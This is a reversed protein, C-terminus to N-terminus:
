NALKVFVMLKYLDLLELQQDDTIDAKFNKVKNKNDQYLDYFNEEWILKLHYKKAIKLFLDRDAIFESVDISDQLWFHYKNSGQSIIKYYKNGDGMRERIIQDDPITLIFYGGDELHSSVNFLAYELRENNEFAYHFAFQCSILDFKEGELFSNGFADLVLFYANKFNPYDRKFRRQAEQISKPSIDIATYEKIKRKLLKDIDAGKGACLDLVRDNARVYKTILINKAFNCFNKFKYLESKSRDVKEKADKNDYHNIIDKQHDM